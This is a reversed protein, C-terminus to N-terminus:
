LKRISQVADNPINMHVATPYQGKTLTAHPGNGNTATHVNFKGHGLVWAGSVGEPQGSPFDPNVDDVDWNYYQFVIILSEDTTLKYLSTLQTKLKRKFRKRFNVKHLV